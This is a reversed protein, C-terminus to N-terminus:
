RIELTFPLDATAALGRVVGASPGADARGITGARTHVQVEVGEALAEPVAFDATAELHNQCNACDKVSWRSLVPDVDVLRKVGEIEAYAAIVFSGTIKARDLGAVHVTRMAPAAMAAFASLARAQAHQDLSGPGYTYGLQTEINIVDRTTMPSTDHNSFPALPTDLTIPANLDADAPPSNNGGLAYVAGPDSADIDFADTAGHRRQWTWFTYDIFCHHFYFIPDLGATENEGMDGNAGEIPSARYQPVDFGGIALHVANHPSELATVQEAPPHDGNWAAQSTTNSFLTYNPADLCQVYKSHVLGFLRTNTAQPIVVPWSLWSVINANLTLVNAAYSPFKANHAATAAQDAATGVLGSLPYRVTEYGKPKSYLPTDGPVTDVIDVPFIFSRLPNDIMVGDLEFYLDTLARPIGNTISLDSCEDWFPLTVDGCGPISRLAEELLHLYGRHWTPFLVTGHQCYGGWWQGNTAGPGRFPEGHYGGLIFFSRPDDSPLEKIGKWARMLNELEARNGSDYDAQIDSLSRRVRLSASSAM